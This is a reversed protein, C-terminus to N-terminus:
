RIKEGQKLGSECLFPLAPRPPKKKSLVGSVMTSIGEAGAQEVIRRLLNPLPKGPVWQPFVQPVRQLQNSADPRGGKKPAHGVAASKRAKKADRKSRRPGNGDNRNGKSRLGPAKMLQVGKPDSVDWPVRWEEGVPERIFQICQYLRSGNSLDSAIKM